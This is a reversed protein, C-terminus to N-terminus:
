LAAQLQGVQAYQLETDENTQNCKAHYEWGMQWIPAAADDQAYPCTASSKGVARAFFGELFTLRSFRQGTNHTTM